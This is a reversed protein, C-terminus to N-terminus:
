MQEYRSLYSYYCDSDLVQINLHQISHYNQCEIKLKKSARTIISYSLKVANSKVTLACKTAIKRDM